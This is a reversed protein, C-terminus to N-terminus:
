HRDHGPTWPKAPNRELMILINGSRMSVDAVEGGYQEEDATTIMVRDGRRWMQPHFAHHQMMGHPLLELTRADIDTDIDHYGQPDGPTRPCVLWTSV